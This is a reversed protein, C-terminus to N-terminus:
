RTSTPVVNTRKLFLVCATKSHPVEASSHLLSVDIRITDLSLQFNSNIVCLHIMLCIIEINIYHKIM